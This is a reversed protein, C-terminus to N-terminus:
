TKFLMKMSKFLCQIVEQHYLDENRFLVPLYNADVM